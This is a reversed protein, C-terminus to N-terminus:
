TAAASYADNGAPQASYQSRAGATRVFEGISWEEDFNVRERMGDRASKAITRAHRSLDYQAAALVDRESVELVAHRTAIAIDFLDLAVGSETGTRALALLAEGRDRGPCAGDAIGGNV